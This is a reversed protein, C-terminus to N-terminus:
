LSPSTSQTLRESYLSSLKSILTGIKLLLAEPGKVHISDGFALMDKAFIDFNEIPVRAYQTGDKQVPCKMIAERTPGPLISLRELASPFVIIEATETFIQKEFRLVHDRWATALNFGAPIRFAQDTIKVTLINSLRYIGTRGEKRGLMYWNGSKVVLGLPDLTHCSRGKWSQYTIDITQAEMVANSVDRLHPPMNMHGYWDAPDIHFRDALFAAKTGLADLLKARAGAANAAVGLQSALEPLGSLSFVAAEDPTLATLDTRYKGIIAIGGGVGRDAQIPIGAASLEDIDRYITRKSVEFLDALARATMSGRSQLTVMIALLRSARM